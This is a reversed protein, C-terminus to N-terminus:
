NINFKIGIYTVIQISRILADIGLDVDWWPNHEDYTYSCNSWDLSNNHGDVGKEATCIGECHNHVSV